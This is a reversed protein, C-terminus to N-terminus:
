DKSLDSPKSSSVNRSATHIPAMSVSPKISPFNKDIIGLDCLVERSLYFKDTDTIGLDCLVERSLYFKDTDPSVYVLAGTSVKKSDETTGSLRIFFAGFLTLQGRKAAAMRCKVPILDKKKFGCNYFIKTAMKCSRAGTDAVCDVFSWHVDPLPLDWQAYDM